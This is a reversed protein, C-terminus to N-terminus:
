YDIIGWDAGCGDIIRLRIIAAFFDNPGCFENKLKRAYGTHGM